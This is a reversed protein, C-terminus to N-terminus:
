EQDQAKRAKEKAKEKRNSWIYLGIFILLPLGLEVFEDLWTGTVGHALVLPPDAPM